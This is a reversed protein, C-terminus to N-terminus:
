RHELNGKQSRNCFVTRPDDVGPLNRPIRIGAATATCQWSRHRRWEASKSAEWGARWFHGEQGTILTAVSLRAM